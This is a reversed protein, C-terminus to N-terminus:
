QVTIVQFKLSLKYDFLGNLEKSSLIKRSVFFVM